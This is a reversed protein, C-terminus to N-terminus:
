VGSARGITAVLSGPHRANDHAYWFGAVYPAFRAVSLIESEGAARRVTAVVATTATRTAPRTQEDTSAKRPTSGIHRYDMEALRALLPRQHSDIMAHRINTAMRCATNKNVELDRALQRAVVRSTSNVILSVALFWKQLPVHTHHFITNVTVSFTTNCKNCHHRQEHAIRTSNRSGCYPCLPESNWRIRELEAICDAKLPFQRYVSVISM